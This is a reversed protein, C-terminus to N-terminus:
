LCASRDVFSKVTNRLTDAVKNHTLMTRAKSICIPTSCNLAGRDRDSAATPVNCIAKPIRRGFLVIRKSLMAVKAKIM